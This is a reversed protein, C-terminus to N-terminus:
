RILGPQVLEDDGACPVRIQEFGHPPHVSHAPEHLVAQSTVVCPNNPLCLLETSRSRQRRALYACTVNM